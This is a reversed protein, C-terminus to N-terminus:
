MRINLLRLSIQKILKSNKKGNRNCMTITTENNRKKKNWQLSFFSTSIPLRQWKAPRRQRMSIWVPLIVMMMMVVDRRWSFHKSNNKDEQGRVVNMKWKSNLKIWNIFTLLLNHYCIFCFCLFFMHWVYIWLCGALDILHFNLNVRIICCFILIFFHFSADDIRTRRAMWEIKWIKLWDRLWM